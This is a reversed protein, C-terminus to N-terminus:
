IFPRRDPKNKQVFSKALIKRLSTLELATLRRDRYVAAAYIEVFARVEKNGTTDALEFLGQQGRKIEVGCDREVLRYFRRLLREEPTPLLRRRNILLATMIAVGALLLLPRSMASLVREVNLAQFREGITRATEAQKEFDYTIVSRNWAHDFSDIALRLQMLWSQQQSGAWVAAANQAFSSPDIRLWGQGEVFAEIWVHAMQENILYYGGLDNYDGGLYGGVLRTPVGSARAVIAFASAFFECNGQRTEFLFQELAQDGTPLGQTVYRYNGQRFHETLLELTRDDSDTQRLISGALDMIRRPLDNPLRLYFDRAIAGNVPLAGVAVSEASYHQRRGPVVPSTFTGDPSRRARHSTISAPADLALLFGALGPEPYIVQRLRAPGYELREPPVAADRVWRQGDLRNFVTGRWYLQQNPQRPLEARFALLQSDNVMSSGGPEVKDTFGSLRSVQTAQFNWLPVPTRPLLIFFFALLPLSALPMLLGAALVRRLDGRSLTMRSDQDHFSLLVLAVAVMFLMLALYFLFVPSLDFLSSSALCFLSLVHIQQHHRVNKAGLLRVALMIALGSVVPQVPNARSIQAAYFLFVPVIAANLLWNRLPWAGRLDQWLGAAMGIVLLLRPVPALFPFLPIIGCLAIAYSLGALLPSITVM